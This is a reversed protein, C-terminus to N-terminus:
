LHQGFREPQRPYMRPLGSVGSLGVGGNRSPLASATFSGGWGGGGAAVLM